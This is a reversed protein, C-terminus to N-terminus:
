TKWPFEAGLRDAEEPKVRGGYRARGYLEGLPRSMKALWGRSATEPARGSPPAENLGRWKEIAGITESPTLSERHAYGEKIAEALVAAYLSRVRKEAPMATWEERRLTRRAKPRNRAFLRGLLKEGQLLSEREETYGLDTEAARRGALLKDYWATVRDAIRRWWVANLLYRRALRYVVVLALAALVVYLAYELWIWLRGTGGEQPPFAPPQASQVPQPTPEPAPEGAPVLSFLWRLLRAVQPWIPLGAFPLFVLVVIVGWLALYRKGAVALRRTVLGAHLGAEALSKAQVFYFAAALWVMGAALLLPKAGAAIGLPSAAALVLAHLGVAVSCRVTRAWDLRAIWSLIGLPLVLGILRWNAASAAATSAAILALHVLSAPLKGRLMEPLTRGIAASLWALAIWGVTPFALGAQAHLALLLPYFALADAFGRLILKM